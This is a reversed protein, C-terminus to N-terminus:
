ERTTTTTVDSSKVFTLCKIHKESCNNEELYKVITAIMKKDIPRLPVSSNRRSM